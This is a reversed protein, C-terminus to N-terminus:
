SYLKFYLQSGYWYSQLNICFWSNIVMKSNWWTKLESLRFKFCLYLHKNSGYIRLRIWDCYIRSKWGLNYSIRWCILNWCSIILFYWSCKQYSQNRWFTYPWLNLIQHYKLIQWLSSLTKSWISPSMRPYWCTWDDMCITWKVRNRKIWKWAM